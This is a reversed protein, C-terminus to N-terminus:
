RRFHSIPSHLLLCTPRPRRHEEACIENLAERFCAPQCMRLLSTVVVALCMTMSILICAVFSEGPLRCSSMLCGLFLILMLYGVILQTSFCSVRILMRMVKVGSAQSYAAQGFTSLKSSRPQMETHTDGGRLQFVTARASACGLIAKRSPPAQLTADVVVLLLPLASLM